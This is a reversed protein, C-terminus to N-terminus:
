ILHKFNFLKINKLHNIKQFLKSLTNYFPYIGKFDIIHNKYDYEIINKYFEVCFNYIGLLNINLIKLYTNNIIFILFKM